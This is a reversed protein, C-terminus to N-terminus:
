DPKGDFCQISHEACADTLFPHPNEPLLVCPSKKFIGPCVMLAHTQQSPLLSTSAKAGEQPHSYALFPRFPFRELMDAQPPQQPPQGSNGFFVMQMVATSQQFRMSQRRRTKKHQTHLTRRWVSTTVSVVMCATKGHSSEGEAFRLIMAADKKASTLCFTSFSPKLATTKARQQRPWRKRWSSGLLFYGM